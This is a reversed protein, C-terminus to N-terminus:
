PAARRPPAPTAPVRDVTRLAMALAVIWGVITWGTLLNIAIVSGLNRVHRAAAVISPAFYLVIGILILVVGLAPNGSADGAAALM